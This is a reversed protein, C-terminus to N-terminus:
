IIEKEFIGEIIGSKDKVILRRERKNLFTFGIEIRNKPLIEKINESWEIIIINDKSAIIEEFGLSLMENKTIRYADFHYLNKQKIGKYKKYIVFTPSTIEEKIGMGKAFGKVFTTKGSGLNGVLSFILGERSQLAKKAIKKGIERTKAPSLSIIM